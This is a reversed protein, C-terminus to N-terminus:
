KSLFHLIAELCGGGIARAKDTITFCHEKKARPDIDAMKFKETILLGDQLMGRLVGNISAYVPEGNVKAIIDGTKVNAGIKMIAEVKGAIPSYIVREASKGGIEGPVGTNPLASGEYIVRGLDHGRMTEIIADADIGVIFGPGLAIVFPAQGVKTMAINKKALIGDILITPQLKVIIEGLPDVLVPIEDNKLIEQWTDFKAKRATIGEIEFKEQYIANAFAVTKRIVTPEKLDTMVVPFGSNYLRAAVGSALDGAGRILVINNEFM